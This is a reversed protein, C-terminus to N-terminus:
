AREVAAPQPRGILQLLPVLLILGGRDTSLALLFGFIGRQGSLDAIIEHYRRVVTWDAMALSSSFRAYYLLLSDVFALYMSFFVYCGYVICLGLMVFIAIRLTSLASEAFVERFRSRYIAVYALYVSLLLMLVANVQDVVYGVVIRSRGFLEEFGRLTNSIDEDVPSLSMKITEVALANSQFNDYDITMQYVTIGFITIGLLYIVTCYMSYPFYGASLKRINDRDISIDKVFGSNRKLHVAIRGYLISVLFLTVILGVSVQPHISLLGFVSADPTLILLVFLMCVLICLNFFEGQEASTLGLLHYQETNEGFGFEKVWVSGGFYYSFKIALSGILFLFILLSIDEFLHNM